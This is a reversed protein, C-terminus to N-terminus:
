YPNTMYTCHTCHPTGADRSPRDIHPVTMCAHTDLCAAVEYPTKGLREGAWWGVGAVTHLLTDVIRCRLTETAGQGRTHFSTYINMHTGVAPSRLACYIHSLQLLSTM